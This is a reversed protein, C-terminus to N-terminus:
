ELRKQSFYFGVTAGLLGALVSAADKAFAIMESAPSNGWGVWYVLPSLITLAFIALLGYALRGAVHERKYELPTFVIKEPPREIDSRSDIRIDTTEPEGAPM